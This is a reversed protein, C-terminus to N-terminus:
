EILIVGGGGVQVESDFCDVAASPNWWEGNATRLECNAALMEQSRPSTPVVARVFVYAGHTGNTGNNRLAM